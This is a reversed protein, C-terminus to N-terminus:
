RVPTGITDNIKFTVARLEADFNTLSFLEVISSPRIEIASVNCRLFSNGTHIVLNSSSIQRRSLLAQLVPRYSALPWSTLFNM